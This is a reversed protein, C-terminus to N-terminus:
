KVKLLGVQRHAVDTEERDLPCISRGERGEGDWENEGRRQRRDKDRTGQWKDRLFM